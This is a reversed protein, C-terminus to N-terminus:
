GQSTLECEPYQTVQYRIHATHNNESDARINTLGKYHTLAGNRNYGLIIPDVLFRLVLSTPRIQILVEADVDSVGVPELVFGYHDGRTPALFQFPLSEGAVVSPWNARVFHDFGADVVLSEDFTVSFNKAAGAPPQWHIDVNNADPYRIQLQENFDPQRFDISPRASAAGYQLRKSAFTNESSGKRYDVQHEGPLFLNDRCTGTVRHLEQYLVEDNDIAKAIGRFEFVDSAHVPMAIILPVALKALHAIM